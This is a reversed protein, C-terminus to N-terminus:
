SVEEDTAPEADPSTPEAAEVSDAPRPIGETDGLTQQAWAEWAEAAGPVHAHVQAAHILATQDHRGLHAALALALTVVRERSMSLDLRPLREVVRCLSEMAQLRRGRGARGRALILAVVLEEDPDKSEYERAIREARAYRKAGHALLWAANLPQQAALFQEAAELPRGAQEYCRASALPNGAREYAQAAPLWRGAQEHLRAAHAYDGSDQACRCAAEQLGARDYLWAARQLLQERNM